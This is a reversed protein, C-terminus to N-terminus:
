VHMKLPLFPRKLSIQRPLIMILLFPVFYPTVFRKIQELIFVKYGIESMSIESKGKKRQNGKLIGM